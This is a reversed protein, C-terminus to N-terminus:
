TDHKGCVWKLQPQDRLDTLALASHWSCQCAYARAGRRRRLKARLRHCDPMNNRFFLYDCTSDWEHDDFSAIRFDCSICRLQDCVRQSNSTGVGSPITSGGVFVPCCKRKQTVQDKPGSRVAKGVKSNASRNKVDDENNDDLLEDLLTDIDDDNEVRRTVDQKIKCPLDQQEESAQDVQISQGPLSIDHCFKAEVEDLLEDLDDAMM